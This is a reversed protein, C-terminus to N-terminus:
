KAPRVVALEVEPNRGALEKEAKSRFLERGTQSGRIWVSSLFYMDGYRHFELKTGESTSRIAGKTPLYLELAQSNFIRIHSDDISKVVYHGAPLSQGAASFAFPVDVVVDGPGTQALSAVSALLVGCFAICRLRM